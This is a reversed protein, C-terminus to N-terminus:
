RGLGDDDDDDDDDYDDDDDNTIVNTFVCRKKMNAKLIHKIFNKLIKCYIKIM